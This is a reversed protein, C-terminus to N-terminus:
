AGGNFAGLAIRRLNFTPLERLGFKRTVCAKLASLEARTFVSIHHAIRLSEPYGATFRDNGLIRGLTAEASEALHALDLRFVLGDNTFKALVTKVPGDRVMFYSAGRTKSVASTARESLIMNSSKSFGVLCSETNNKEAVLLSFLGLPHKLSGDVMVVLQQEADMLSSVVRSELTNRIVREAVAPESLMAGLEVSSFTSRMGSAGHGSLYVLVPGLRIFRRLSGSSSFGVGVRGAYLAGNATEGVLVCTSDVSALLRGEKLPTICGPVDSVDSAWTFYPYLEKGYRSFVFHKGSLDAEATRTLEAADERFEAVLDVLLDSHESQPLGLTTAMKRM